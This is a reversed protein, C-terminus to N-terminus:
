QTSTPRLHSARLPRMFQIPCDCEAAAFPSVTRRAEGPAAPGARRADGVQMVPGAMPRSTASRRSSAVPVGTRRLGLASGSSPTVFADVTAAAALLAAGLALKTTNMGQVRRGQIDRFLERGDM